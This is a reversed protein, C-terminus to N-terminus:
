EVHVTALTTAGVVNGEPGFPTVVGLVLGIDGDRAYGTVLAHRVIATDLHQVAAAASEADMSPVYQEGDAEVLQPAPRATGVEVQVAYSLDGRYPLPYPEPFALSPYVAVLRVWVLGACDRGSGPDTGCDGGRDLAAAAGSFMGWACPGPVAPTREYVDALATLIGDLVPAAVPDTATGAAVCLGASSALVTV